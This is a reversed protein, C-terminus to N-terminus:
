NIGSLDHLIDLVSKWRQSTKESLTLTTEITKRVGNLDEFEVRLDYSGPRMKYSKRSADLLELDQIVPSWFWTRASGGGRYDGEPTREAETWKGGNLRYDMKGPKITVPKKGWQENPVDTWVKFNRSMGGQDYQEFAGLSLIVKHELVDFTSIGYVPYVRIPTQPFPCVVLIIPVLISLLCGWGLCGRGSQKDKTSEDMRHMGAIIEHQNRHRQDSDYVINGARKYQPEEM